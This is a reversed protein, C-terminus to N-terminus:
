VRERERETEEAPQCPARDVAHAGELVGVKSPLVHYFVPYLTVKGIIPVGKTASSNNRTSFLVICKTGAILPTGKIPFTM